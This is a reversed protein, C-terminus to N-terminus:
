SNFIRSYLLEHRGVWLDMAPVSQGAEEVPTDWEREVAAAIMEQVGGGALVRQAQYPGFLSARVAASILAKVHGLMFVYATQHLSLGAVRCIVGFLPALHAAVPPLGTGDDDGGGGGGSWSNPPPSRLARAYEGLSELVAEGPGGAPARSLAASASFSKEWLGLLARGQAVSARRGVTCIVAADLQDDLDLLRSPDRHAALAFPLTTAAYSSISLPLFLDFPPHSPTQPPPAQAQSSSSSTTSPTRRNHALYSELGSSFAFSGLPLASDSLLLLFHTTAHLTPTTTMSENTAAQKIHQPSGAKSMQPENHAKGNAVQGRGRLRAKARKLKQELELIEDKIDHDSQGTFTGHDSSSM